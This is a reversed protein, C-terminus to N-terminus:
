PFYLFCLSWPLRSGLSFSSSSPIQSTRRNKSPNFAVQQIIFCFSSNNVFFLSIHQNILKKACGSPCLWKPQKTTKITQGLAAFRARCAFLLGRGLKARNLLSVKCKRFSSISHNCDARASYVYKALSASQPAQYLLIPVPNYAPFLSHSDIATILNKLTAV